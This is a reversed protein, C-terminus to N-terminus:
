MAERYLLNSDLRSGSSILIVTILEVYASRCNNFTRPIIKRSSISKDCDEGVVELLATACSRNACSYEYWM